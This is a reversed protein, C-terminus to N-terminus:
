IPKFTGPKLILQMFTHVSLDVRSKKPQKIIAFEGPSIEEVLGCDAPVEEPLILGAPAAYYMRECLLSYGGRKEPKAVDALFDARSIKVEHIWPCIRKADYVKALSFLDPRMVLSGATPLPVSLQINEWTIRRQSRVWTALRSALDHHPLRRAIERMNEAAL